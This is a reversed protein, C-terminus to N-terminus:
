YDDPIPIESWDKYHKCKKKRGFMLACMNPYKYCRSLYGPEDELNACRLCLSMFSLDSEAYPDIFIVGKRCNDCLLIEYDPENPDIGYSRAGSKHCINCNM